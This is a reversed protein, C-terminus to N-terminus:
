ISGDQGRERKSRIEKAYGFLVKEKQWSVFLVQVGTAGPGHKRRASAEIVDMAGCCGNCNGISVM